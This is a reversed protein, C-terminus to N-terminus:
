VEAEVKLIQPVLWSQSDLGDQSRRYLPHVHTACIQAQSTSPQFCPSQVEMEQDSSSSEQSVSTNEQYVSTNTVHASNTTPRPM